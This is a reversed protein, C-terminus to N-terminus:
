LPAPLQYDDSFYTTYSVLNLYAESDEGDIKEKSSSDLYRRIALLKIEKRIGARKLIVSLESRAMFNFINFEGEGESLFLELLDEEMYPLVPRIISTLYFQDAEISSKEGFYEVKDAIIAKYDRQFMQLLPLYPEQQIPEDTQERANGLIPAIHHRFIEFISYEHGENKPVVRSM